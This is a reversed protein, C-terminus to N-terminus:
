CILRAIHKRVRSMRCKQRSYMLFKHTCRPCRKYQENFQFQRTTFRLIRVTATAAVTVAREQGTRLKISEFLTISSGVLVLQFRVRGVDAPLICCLTCHRPCRAIRPQTTTELNIGMHIIFKWKKNIQRPRMPKKERGYETCTFTKRPVHAILM